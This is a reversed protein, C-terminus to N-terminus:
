DVTFVKRLLLAQGEEVSPIRDVSLFIQHRHVYGLQSHTLGISGSVFSLATKSTGETQMTALLSQLYCRFQARIWEDSGEWESISLSSM